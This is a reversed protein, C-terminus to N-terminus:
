IEGEEEVDFAEDFSDNIFEEFEETVTDIDEYQRVQSRMNRFPQKDGDLYVSILVRM